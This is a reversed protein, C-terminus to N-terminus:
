NETRILRRALLGGCLLALALAALPWLGPTMPDGTTPMGSPTAGMVQISGKMGHGEHEDVPCYM